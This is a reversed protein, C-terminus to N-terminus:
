AAARTRRRPAGNEVYECISLLRQRSATYQSHLRRCERELHRVLRDLDSSVRLSPAASAGQVARTRAILVELDHMRGLLDQAEALRRLRAEARSRSLERAVEMAYRLKKIAIRVDHLRDPLYISSANDIAARRAAARRRARDEAAALRKPDGTRVTVGKARTKKAASHARSELKALNVDAIRRCMDKHLLGREQTIVGRLTAIARRPVDGPATDRELEALTLLAVDLERVPGLARTLRRAARELKRGRGGTAVLPLAERLRRTAVRAKHLSEAHGREAAPLARTVARLRQRILHEAPATRKM